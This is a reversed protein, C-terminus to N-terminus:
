GVDRKKGRLKVCYVVTSRGVGFRRGVEVYSLGSAILERMQEVQADTLRSNGNKEGYSMTGHRIRDHSNQTSTGWALNELRNDYPNGNLPRCVQGVAAPGKFTRLVLLHVLRTKRDMTVALYYIATPRDYWHGSARTPKLQRWVGTRVSVTGRGYGLGKNRRESWVSGDSGAMYGPFGPIDRYEVTADFEPM